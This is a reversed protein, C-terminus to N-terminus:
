ASLHSFREKEAFRGRGRPSANGQFGSSRAQSGPCAPKRGPSRNESSTGFARKRVEADDGKAAKRLAELAPVGIAALEKSADEREKFSGSGMQGILKDIKEKSPVEEAARPLSGGLALGVVLLAALLYRSRM